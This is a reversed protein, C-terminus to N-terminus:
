KKIIYSLIKNISSINKFTYICVFIFYGTFGIVINSQYAFLIFALLIIIEYIINKFNKILLLKKLYIESLYLRISLAIFTGIAVLLVSRSFFYSISIIIIAMVLGTVNAKLMAKEERLLKYYTNILISMKAQLFVIAFIIPLYAFIVIYNKMFYNIFINFPFYILLLIYVVTNTIKNLEIFYDSFREEALRALTPFIVLGIATIFVLILNMTSIAFSYTGYSEVTEFREILFRGFGLIFIGAYNALMLILGVKINVLTEKIALKQNIGKGIVLERCSYILAVVVVVKSFTDAMVVFIFQDMSTVLIFGIFVLMIIKDLVTYFSYKKMQNTTQLVYLFVSTLGAIPINISAWVMALQKNHDPELLIILSVLITIIFQVVIFQKLSSRFKDKPLEEYNYKGYRLYIGNSYGLSFLGVYSVYLLYVQWYGFNTVGLVIPLILNKSVGLVLTTGQAIIVFITNRIGSKIIKNEM